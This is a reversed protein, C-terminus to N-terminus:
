TRSSSNRGQGRIVRAPAPPKEMADYAAKDGAKAYLEERGIIAAFLV